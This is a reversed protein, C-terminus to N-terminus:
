LPVTEQLIHQSLHKNLAKESVVDVKRELADSLALSLGVQDLLTTGPLFDM